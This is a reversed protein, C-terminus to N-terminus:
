DDAPIDAVMARALRDLAADLGDDAGPSWDGLLSRLQVRRADILRDLTQEGAPTLAVSEGDRVFGRAALAAVRPSLRAADVRLEDALRGVSTTGREGIRGLVWSEGPAIRIGARAITAQYARTREEGEM